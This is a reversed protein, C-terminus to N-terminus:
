PSSFRVRPMSDEDIEGAARRLELVVRHLGHKRFIYFIEHYRDPYKSFRRAVFLEASPRPKRPAQYKQLTAM